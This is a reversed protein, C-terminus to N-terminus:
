SEPHRMRRMFYCLCDQRIIREDLTLLAPTVARRTVVDEGSLALYHATVDHGRNDQVSLPMMRGGPARALTTGAPQTRFNLHDIDDPVSLAM